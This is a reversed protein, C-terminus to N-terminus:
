ATRESRPRLVRRKCNRCVVTRSRRYTLGDEGDAREENGAWGIGEYMLWGYAYDSVIYGDDSKCYPCVNGDSAPGSM